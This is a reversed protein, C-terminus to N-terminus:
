RAGLGRSRIFNSKHHIHPIVLDGRLLSVARRHNRDAAPHRNAICLPRQVVNGRAQRRSRALDLEIERPDLVEVAATARHQDTEALLEGRLARPQADRARSGVDVPKEAEHVLGCDQLGPWGVVAAV